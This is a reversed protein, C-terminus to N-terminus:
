QEWDANHIQFRKTPQHHRMAYSVNIMDAVGTYHRLTTAIDKHRLLASVMHIPIGKRLLQCAVTSRIRRPYIGDIEYYVSIKEVARYVDKREWQKKSQRIFLPEGPKLHKIYNALIQVLDEHIPMEQPEQSKTDRLYIIKSELQIDEKRLNAVEGPRFAMYGLVATALALQFIPRQYEFKLALIANMQEPHMKTPNTPKTEVGAQQLLKKISQLFKDPLYQTGDETPFLLDSNPFISNRCNSYEGILVRSQDSTFLLNQDAKIELAQSISYDLERITLTIVIDRLYRFEILKQFNM